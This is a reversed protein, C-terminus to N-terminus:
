RPASSKRSTWGTAGSTASRGARCLGGDARSRRGFAKPPPKPRLSKRVCRDIYRQAEPGVAWKNAVRNAEFAQPAPWTDCRARRRGRSRAPRVPAASDLAARPATGSRSQRTSTWACGALLARTLVSAEGRASPLANQPQVRLRRRVQAAERGGRQLRRPDCLGDLRASCLLVTPGQPVFSLPCPVPAGRFAGGSDRPPTGTRPRASAFDCSSILPSMERDMRALPAITNEFRDPAGTVLGTPVQARVCLIGPLMRSRTTASTSPDCTREGQVSAVADGVVSMKAIVDDTM